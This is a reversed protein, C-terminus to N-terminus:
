SRAARRRPFPQQREDVHGPVLAEDARHDRARGADVQEQEDDGGVVAHHRLRALVRGHQLREADVRADRRGRLGVEGVRVARALLHAVQDAAIDRRYRGEARRARTRLTWTCSAM